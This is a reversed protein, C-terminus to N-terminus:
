SGGGQTPLEFLYISYGVRGAPRGRAALDRRLADLAAAVEM